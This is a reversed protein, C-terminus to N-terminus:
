AIARRVVSIAHIAFYMILWLQDNFIHIGAKVTGDFYAGHLSASIAGFAAITIRGQQPLLLLLRFYWASDNDILGIYALGSTSIMMAPAYNLPIWQLISAIDIAGDALPSYIMSIAQIVHVVLAGWIIISLRTTTLALVKSVM